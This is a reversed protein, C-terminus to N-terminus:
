DYALRHYIELGEELNGFFQLQGKNLVLARNCVRRIQDESHSVFFVVGSKDILNLIRRSIKEKFAKDAAEFVEDLIFIDSSTATAVSLCLRSQMGSSYRRFPIDLFHGLEAFSLAEQLLSDQDSISLEPYMLRVLIQANERGTLEPYIVVNPDLVARVTRRKQFQISKSHYVGALCRCLTTKGAGNKGIVAIRDGQVARFSVQNLIHLVDRNRFAFEIPHSMMHIFQSRLTQDRHFQLDFKVNLNNVEVLVESDFTSHM